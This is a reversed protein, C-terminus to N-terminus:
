VLSLLFTFTAPKSICQDAGSLMAHMVQYDDDVATLFILPTQQFQPKTRLLKCMNIGNMEPMLIDSIIIDPSFSEAEIIGKLGNEAVSVDFGAKKFNYSLFELIDTEDDILLLKKKIMLKM